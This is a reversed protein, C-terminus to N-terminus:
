LFEICGRLKKHSFVLILCRVQTFFYSQSIPSSAIHSDRNADKKEIDSESPERIRRPPTETEEEPTIISDSIQSQDHSQIYFLRLLCDAAKNEKEKVYVIEHKYEEM